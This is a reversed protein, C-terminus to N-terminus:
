VGRGGQQIFSSGRMVDLRIGSHIFLAPVSCRSQLRGTPSMKLDFM